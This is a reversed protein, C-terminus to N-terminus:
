RRRRWKLRLTAGQYDFARRISNLIFSEYSGSLLGPDNVFLVFLPPSVGAQVAFFIKPRKGKRVPPPHAELWGRVFRNLIGTSIRRVMNSRVKDVLTFAEEVNWGKLASVTVAPAFAAFPAKEKLRKVCVPPTVGSVLDWKNAAVVLGKGSKVVMSLIRADGTTLPTRADVMVLAVDCAEIARRSRILSYREVAGSVKREHRIGATDILLYNRGSRTLLTDVADRTTGPAEDVIVREEGLLANIFTSKGVNPRGVVAVRLPEEAGDEKEEKEEIHSVIDDLLDGVGLGHIASVPQVSPFGIAFFSSAELFLAENDCKNVAVVVPKSSKRLLGAVEEDLPTVGCTVDTVMTILSAESVAVAVQDRVKTREPHDSFDLGGTDVLNFNKGSWRCGAYVRDRTVGEEEAVIAIRRGALRNFLASKGVNPRGVIAVLNERM